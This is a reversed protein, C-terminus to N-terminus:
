LVQNEFQTKYDQVTNIIEDINIIYQRMEEVFYPLYHQFKQPCKHSWQKLKYADIYVAGKGVEKVRIKHSWMENDDLKLWDENYYVMYAFKSNQKIVDRCSMLKDLLKCVHTYGWDQGNAIFTITTPTIWGKYFEKQTNGSLEIMRKLTERSFLFLDNDNTM